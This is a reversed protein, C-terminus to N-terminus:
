NTNTAPAGEPVSAPPIIETMPREVEVRIAVFQMETGSGTVRGTVCVNDDLRVDDVKAAAGNIFIEVNPDLKGSIPIEKKQKPHYYWMKVEGTEKNIASVRGNRQVVKPRDDDRNCGALAASMAVAAALLVLIATRGVTRNM